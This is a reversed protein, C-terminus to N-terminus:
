DESESKKINNIQSSDAAANIRGLAEKATETGEATTKVEYSNLSALSIIILGLLVLRFKKM